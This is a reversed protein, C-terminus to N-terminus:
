RYRTPDVQIGDIDWYQSLEHMVQTLLVDHDAKGSPPLPIEMHLVFDGGERRVADCELCHGTFYLFFDFGAGLVFYGQRKEDYALTLPGNRLEDLSKM